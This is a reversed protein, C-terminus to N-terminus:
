NDIHNMACTDISYQISCFPHCNLYYKESCFKYLYKGTFIISNLDWFLFVHKWTIKTMINHCKWKYNFIYQRILVINKNKKSLINSLSTLTVFNNCFIFILCLIAFFFWVIFIISHNISQNISQHKVGVGVINWSYQPTFM